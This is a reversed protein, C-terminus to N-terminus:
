SLKACDLSAVSDRLEDQLTDQCWLHFHLFLEVYSHTASTTKARSADGDVVSELIQIRSNSSLVM